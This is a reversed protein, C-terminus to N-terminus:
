PMVWFWRGEHQCVPINELPQEMPVNYIMTQVGDIEILVNRYWGHRVAGQKIVKGNMRKISGNCFNTPTTTACSAVLLVLILMTIAKM